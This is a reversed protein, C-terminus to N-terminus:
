VGVPGVWVRGEGDAVLQTQGAFWNERLTSGVRQDDIECVIDCPLLGRPGRRNGLSAQWYHKTVSSSSDFATPYPLDSSFSSSSPTNSVVDVLTSFIPLSLHGPDHPSYAQLSIYKKGHLPCPPPPIDNRPTSSQYPKPPEPPPPPPPPRYAKYTQPKTNPSTGNQPPTSPSPPVPRRPLPPPEPQFNQSPRKRPVNLPDEQPKRSSGYPSRSRERIPNDPRLNGNSFQNQVGPGPDSFVRKNPEPKNPPNSPPQMNIYPPPPMGFSPPANFDFYDPPPSSADGTSAPTQKTQDSPSEAPKPAELSLALTMVATQPAMTIEPPTYVFQTVSPAPLSYIPPPSLHSADEAIPGNKVSAKRALEDQKQKEKDAKVKLKATEKKAKEVEKLAEDLAKTQSAVVKIFARRESQLQDMLAKNPNKMKAMEINLTVLLLNLTSKSSDLLSRLVTMRSKQFLFRVRKIFPLSSDKGSQPKLSLMLGNAEEHVMGCQEVLQPLTDVASQIISSGVLKTSDELSSHVLRLVQSFSAMENSIYRVDRGASGLEDAIDNM